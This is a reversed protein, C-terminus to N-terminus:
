SYDTMEQFKLAKKNKYGFPNCEGKGSTNILRRENRIYKSSRQTYTEDKM